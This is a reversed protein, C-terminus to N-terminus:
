EVELVKDRIALFGQPDNPDYNQLAEVMRSNYDRLKKNLRLLADIGCRHDGTLITCDCKPCVRYPPKKGEDPMPM